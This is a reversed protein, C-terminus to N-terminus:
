TEHVGGTETAAATIWVIGVAEQNTTSYLLQTSFTSTKPKCMLFHCRSRDNSGTHRGATRARQRAWQRANGPDNGTHTQRACQRSDPLSRACQRPTNAPRMAPLGAIVPRIAPTM